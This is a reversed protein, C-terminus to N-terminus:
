MNTETKMEKLTQNVNEKLSDSNFLIKDYNEVNFTVYTKVKQIYSTEEKTLEESLSEINRLVDLPNPLYDDHYYINLYKEVHSITWKSVCKNLSKAMLKEGIISPDTASDSSQDSTSCTMKATPSQDLTSCAMQM